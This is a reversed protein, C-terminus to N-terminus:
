QEMHKKLKNKIRQLANDIMKPELGLIDAIEKYNFGSAKLEFVQEELDTLIKKALDYLENISERSVVMKEPNISDDGLFDLINSEDNGSEFSISENLIKNKLRETGLVTSLIKREICTKAYTYFSTDKSDKFSIIAYSLGIMGEQILDSMELGRASCKPYYKKSISNILPKYKIFMLENAEENQERIYSLLESDNYKTYDM